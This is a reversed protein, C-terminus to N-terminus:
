RYVLLIRFGVKYLASAKVVKDFRSKDYMSGFLINQRLSGSFVWPQQSVYAVKGKVNVSGSVAPLEGLIAM